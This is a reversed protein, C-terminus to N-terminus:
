STSVSAQNAREIWAQWQLGCQRSGIPNEELNFANAVYWDEFAAREAAEDVVQIRQGKLNPTVGYVPGNFTMKVDSM